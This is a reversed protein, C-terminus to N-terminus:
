LVFFKPCITDIVVIGKPKM